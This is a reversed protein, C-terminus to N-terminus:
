TRSHSIHSHLPQNCERPKVQRNPLSPPSSRLLLPGDYPAAHAPAAAGVRNEVVVPQGLGESLKQAVVRAALDSGGGAPFAVVIRVARSPYTQAVANFSFMVTCTLAAVLRVFSMM